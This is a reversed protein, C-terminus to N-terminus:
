SGSRRTQAVRVGPAPTARLDGDVQEFRARVRGRPGDLEVLLAAGADLPYGAHTAEEAAEIALRDMM